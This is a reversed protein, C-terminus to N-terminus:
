DSENRSHWSPFELVEMKLVSVTTNAFDVKYDYSYQGFVYPHMPGTEPISHYAPHM